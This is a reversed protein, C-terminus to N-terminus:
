KGKAKAIAPKILSLMFWYDSDKHASLMVEVKELADLMEPAAAILRANAMPDGNVVLWMFMDEM